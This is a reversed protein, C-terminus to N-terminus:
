HTKGHRVGKRSRLVSKQDNCANDSSVALVSFACCSCSTALALPGQRFLAGPHPSKQTKKARHTPNFKAFKAFQFRPKQLILLTGGQNNPEQAPVSCGSTM